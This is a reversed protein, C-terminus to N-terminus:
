TVCGPGVNRIHVVQLVKDIWMAELISPSMSISSSSRDISSEDIAAIKGSSVISGSSGKVPHKSNGTEGDQGNSTTNGGCTLVAEDLIWCTMCVIFFRETLSLETGAGDSTLCIDCRGASRILICRGCPYGEVNGGCTLSLELGEHIGSTM